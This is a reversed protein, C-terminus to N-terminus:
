KETAGLQMSHPEAEEEPMSMYVIIDKVGDLKRVDVLITKALTSINSGEIVAIVRYPGNVVDAATVLPQSRLSRVVESARGRETDVLVYARNKTDTNGM